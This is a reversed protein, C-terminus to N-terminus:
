GAQGFIYNCLAVIPPGEAASHEYCVGVHGDKGVIFQLHSVYYYTALTVAFSRSM